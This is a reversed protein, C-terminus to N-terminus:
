SALGLAAAIATAQHDIFSLGLPVDYGCSCAGSPPRLRRHHMLVAAILTEATQSAPAPAPM